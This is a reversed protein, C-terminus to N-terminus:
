TSTLFKNWEDPSENTITFLEKHYRLYKESYNPEYPKNKLLMGAEEPTRNGKKLNCKFCCTVINTWNTCKRYNSKYRSKPIVHDYTLQSMVLVQNCYQCTYNDRIFLNRRSFTIKRKYINFYNLSRAILPIRFSNNGASLVYNDSYAIIEIGYNKIEPDSIRLSWIIAKKWDVIALPSYDSNLLLCKNKPSM